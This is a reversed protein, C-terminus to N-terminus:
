GREIFEDSVLNKGFAIKLVVKSSILIQIIFPFTATFSAISFVDIIIDNKQGKKVFVTKDNYGITSVELSTFIATTVIEFRGNEDTLSGRDSGKLFIAAYAVPEHTVSDRVLGVIETRLGAGAAEMIGIAM